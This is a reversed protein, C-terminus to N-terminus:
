IKKWKSPIYFIKGIYDKNMKITGEDSLNQFLTTKNNIIFNSIDIYTLSKCYTFMEAM